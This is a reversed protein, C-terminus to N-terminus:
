NKPSFDSAPTSFTGAAVPLKSNNQARCSIDLHFVHLTNYVFIGGTARKLNQFEISM